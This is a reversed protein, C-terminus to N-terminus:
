KKNSNLYKKIPTEICNNIFVTLILSGVVAIIAELLRNWILVDLCHIFVIGHALYFTYSYKDSVKLLKEIKESKYTYDMTSLILVVFINGYVYSMYQSSLGTCLLLINVLSAIVITETKKNEKLVFYILLGVIFFPFDVLLTLWGKFLETSVSVVVTLLLLVSCKAINNIYKLCLPLM